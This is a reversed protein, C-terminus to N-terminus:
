EIGKALAKLKNKAVIADVLHLLSKEDEESLDDIELIREALKSHPAELPKKPAEDILLFDICVNFAKAMKIIVEVSPVVKDNEYRSVQRGDIQAHFAFEDQSWGKESRLQKLKQGLSV